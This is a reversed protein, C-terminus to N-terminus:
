IDVRVGGEGALLLPPFIPNCRESTSIVMLLKLSVFVDKNDGRGEPSLFFTLPFRFSSDV